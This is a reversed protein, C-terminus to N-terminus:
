ASNWFSPLSINEVKNIVFSFIYKTQPEDKIYSMLFICRRLVTQSRADLVNMWKTFPHFLLLSSSLPFSYLLQLSPLFSHFPALGFWIQRVSGTGRGRWASSKIHGDSVNRSINWRVSNYSKFSLHEHQRPGFSRHQIELFVLFWM